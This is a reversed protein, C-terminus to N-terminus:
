ESPEDKKNLHELVNSQVFGFKKYITELVDRYKKMGNKVQKLKSEAQSKVKKTEYVYSATALQEDSLKMVFPHNRDINDLAATSLKIQSTLEKEMQELRMYDIEVEAVTFQNTLNGREIVANKFDRKNDKVISFDDPNLKSM